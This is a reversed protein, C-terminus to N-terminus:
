SDSTLTHLHRQPKLLFPEPKAIMEGLMAGVEHCLGVLREHEAKPLSGCDLLTETEGNEGDANTLKSVFHAEYRRKAWAERLNTCVPRSSRRVQDSLAYREEKPLRTTFRFVDMALAYAKRYVALEKPSRIHVPGRTEQRDFGHGGAPRVEPIGGRAELESSRAEFEVGGAGHRLGANRRRVDAAVSDGRV